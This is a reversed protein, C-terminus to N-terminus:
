VGVGEYRAKGKRWVFATLLGVILLEAYGILISDWVTINWDTLAYNGIYATSPVYYIYQFPLFFFIEQVANPFFTLPILVGALVNRIPIMVWKFGKNKKLWFATCGILISLSLYYLFALPLAALLALPRQPTLFDVGFFLSLILLSPITEIIFAFARSGTKWWVTYAFFDVPRIIYTFLSGEYIANSLMQDWDDWILSLIIMGLVSHLVIAQFDYNGYSAGATYVSSWVAYMVATTVLTVVITLAMGARYQVASKFSTKAAEFHRLRVM